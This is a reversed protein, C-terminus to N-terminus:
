SVFTRSRAEKLAAVLLRGCKDRHQYYTKRCRALVARSKHLTLSGLEDRQRTLEALTKAEFSMKHKQELEHISTVLSQTGQLWLKKM